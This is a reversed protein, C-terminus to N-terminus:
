DQARDHGAAGDPVLYHRALQMAQEIDTVTEVSSDGAPMVLQGDRHLRSEVVVRFCRLFEASEMLAEGHWKVEGNM